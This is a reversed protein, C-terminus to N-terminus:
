SLRDLLNERDVPLVEHAFVRPGVPRPQWERTRALRACPGTAIRKRCCGGAGDSRRKGARQRLRYLQTMVVVYAFSREAGFVRSQRLRSARMLSVIRSILRCVSGCTM